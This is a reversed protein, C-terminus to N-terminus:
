LHAGILTLFCSFRMNCLAPARWKIKTILDLVIVKNINAGHMREDVDMGPGRQREYISTIEGPINKDEKM